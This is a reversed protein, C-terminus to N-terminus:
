IHLKDEFILRLRFNNPYQPGYVMGINANLLVYRINNITLIKPTDYIVTDTGTDFLLDNERKFIRGFAGYPSNLAATYLDFSIFYNIWSEEPILLDWSNLQDNGSKVVVSESILVDNEQIESYSAYSDNYSGVSGDNERWMIPSMTEYYKTLLNKVDVDYTYNNTFFEDPKYIEFHSDTEALEQSIPKWVTHISATEINAIPCDILDCYYELNNGDLQQLPFSQNDITGGLKDVFTLRLEKPQQDHILRKTESFTIYIRGNYLVNEQLLMVNKSVLQPRYNQTDSKFSVIDFTINAIKPNLYVPYIVPHVLQDIIEKWSKNFTVFNRMWWFPSRSPFNDPYTETDCGFKEATETDYTTMQEVYGKNAVTESTQYKQDGMDTRANILRNWRMDLSHFIKKYLTSM